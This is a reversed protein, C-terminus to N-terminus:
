KYNLIVKNGMEFQEIILTKLIEGDLERFDDISYTWQVYPEVEGSTEVKTEVSTERSVNEAETETTEEVVEKAKDELAKAENIINQLMRATMNPHVEGIRDPAVDQIRRILKLQSFGYASWEDLLEGTEMNGFAKFVNLTDSLTAKSMTIDFEEKLYELTNKYGRVKYLGKETIVSLAGMIRLNANDKQMYASRLRNHFNEYLDVAGKEIIEVNESMKIVAQTNEKNQKAM